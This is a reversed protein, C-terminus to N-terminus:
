AARRPDRSPRGTPARRAAMRWPDRFRRPLTPHPLAAPGHAAAARWVAWVHSVFVKDVGGVGGWHV